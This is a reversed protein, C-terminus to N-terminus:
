EEVEGFPEIYKWAIVNGIDEELLDRWFDRWITEAIAAGKYEAGNNTNDYWAIVPMEKPLDKPNKRLDHWRYKDSQEFAEVAKCLFDKYKIEEHDSEEGGVMAQMLLDNGIRKADKYTM